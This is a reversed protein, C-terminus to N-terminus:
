KKKKSVNFTARLKLEKWLKGAAAKVKVLVQCSNILGVLKLGYNLLETHWLSLAFLVAFCSRYKSVILKHLVWSAWYLSKQFYDLVLEPGCLAYAFYLVSDCKLINKLSVGLCQWQLSNTLLVLVFLIASLIYPLIYNNAMEYVTTLLTRVIDAPLSDLKLTTGMASRMTENIHKFIWSGHWSSADSGESCAGDRAAALLLLAAFYTVRSMKQIIGPM